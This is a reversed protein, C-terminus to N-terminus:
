YSKASVEAMRHVANVSLRPALPDGVIAPQKEPEM